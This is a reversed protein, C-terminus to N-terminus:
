LPVSTWCHRILRETDASAIHQLERADSEGNSAATRGDVDSSGADGDGLGRLAAPNEPDARQEVRDPEIRM